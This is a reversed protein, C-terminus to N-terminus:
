LAECVARYLTKMNDRRDIEHPAHIELFSKAEDYRGEGYLWWGIQECAIGRAKAVGGDAPLRTGHAQLFAYATEYQGDDILARLRVEALAPLALVFDPGLEDALAALETFRGLKFLAQGYSEAQAPNRTFLETLTLDRIRAAGDVGAVAEQAGGRRELSTSVAHLHKDQMAVMEILKQYMERVGPQDLDYAREKLRSFLSAADFLNPALSPIGHAQCHQDFDRILEQYAPYPPQDVEAWEPDDAPREGLSYRLALVDRLLERMELRSGAREASVSLSFYSKAVSGRADGRERQCMIGDDGFIETRFTGRLLGLRGAREEVGDIIGAHALYAPSEYSLVSSPPPM